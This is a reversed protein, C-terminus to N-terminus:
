EHPRGAVVVRGGDLLLLRDCYRAAIALDHLVVVVAGGAAAHAGLLGMIELQFRPDLNAIPEDALLVRHAGALLRAMHVRALEGGSLTDAHRAALGDLGTRALADAVAARDAADLRDPSAGFPLRGLAVVTAVDLPWHLEPTQAHYGCHRARATPTLEALPRGACWVSGAALRELGALARLLTTKGAGNPGVLGLFEGAGLACDVDDLVRRTGRMVRLARGELLSM